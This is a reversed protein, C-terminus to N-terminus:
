QLRSCKNVASAMGGVPAHQRSLGAKNPPCLLVLGNLAAVSRASHLARHLLANQLHHLLPLPRPIPLIVAHASLLVTGLQLHTQHSITLHWAGAPKLTHSPVCVRGCYAWM